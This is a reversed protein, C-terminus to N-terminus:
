ESEERLRHEGCTEDHLPDNGLAAPHTVDRHLEPPKGEAASHQHGYVAEHAAIRDDDQPLRWREDDICSVQHQNMTMSLSICRLVSRSTARPDIASTNAPRRVGM